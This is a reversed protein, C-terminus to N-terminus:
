DNKNLIIAAVVHRNEATLVSYTRCLASNDMVELPIQNQALYGIIDKGPFSLTNGCGLLLVDPELQIIPDFDAKALTELSKVPWPHILQNPCVILSDQYSSENITLSGQDYAKIQYQATNDDLSLQM